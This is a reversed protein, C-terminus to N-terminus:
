KATTYLGIRQGQNVLPAVKHLYDMVTANPHERFFAMRDFQIGTKSVGQFFEAFNTIQERNLGTTYGSFSGQQFLRADQLIDRLKVAGITEKNFVWDQGPAANELQFIQAYWNDARVNYQALLEPSVITVPVVEAPGSTELPTRADAAAQTGLDTQTGLGASTAADVKGHLLTNVGENTLTVDPHMKAFEAIKVDNAAINAIKDPSLGKADAFAKEIEGQTLYKSFDFKEGAKLQIDGVKDKLADIFHTKQAGELGEVRAGLVKWVSDGRKVEYSGNLIDHFKSSGSEIGPKMPMATEAHPVAAMPTNAEPAEATGLVSEFREKIWSAAENGGFKDMVIRSLWGSGVAVGLTVAGLKRWTKARKEEQLRLDSYSIDAELMKEVNSFRQEPSMKELTDLQEKVEKDTKKIRRNEGRNELLAETGVALGAGAAVRKLYMLGAAAGTAAGGAAGAAVAVGALAATIIIKQEFSLRNYARGLTGFADAIKESLNLHEARYQTRENILNVQEDLKYYRLLKSMGERMEEKTLATGDGAMDGRMMEVEAKQLEVTKEEYLTRWEGKKDDKAIRFLSSIKKWATTNEFDEKVYSARLENVEASLRDIKTYLTEGKAEGSIIDIPPEQEADRSQTKEATHVVDTLVPIEAEGTSSATEMATGGGEEEQLVQLRAEHEARKEEPLVDESVDALQDMEEQAADLPDNKRRRPSFPNMAGSEDVDTTHQSIDGQAAEESLPHESRDEIPLLRDDRRMEVKSYSDRDASILESFKERIGYKSPIDNWLITEAFAKDTMKLLRCGIKGLFDVLRVGSFRNNKHEDQPIDGSFSRILFYFDDLTEARGITETFKTEDALEGGEPTKEAKPPQVVPSEIPAVVSEGAEAAPDPQASDSKKKRRRIPKAMEQKEPAEQKEAGTGAPIAASVPELAAPASASAVTETVSSQPKSFKALHEQEADECAKMAVLRALIEPNIIEKKPKSPTEPM